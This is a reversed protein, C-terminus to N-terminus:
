EFEERFSQKIERNYPFKTCIKEAEKKTNQFLPTAKYSTGFQNKLTKVFTGLEKIRSIAKQKKM